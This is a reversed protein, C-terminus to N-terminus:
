ILPVVREIVLDDPVVIADRAYLEEFLDEDVNGADIPLGQSTAPEILRKWEDLTAMVVKDGGDRHYDEFFIHVSEPM